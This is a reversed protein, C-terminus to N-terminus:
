TLGSERQSTRRPIDSRTGDKETLDSNIFCRLHDCCSGHLTYREGQERLMSVACKFNEGLGRGGDPVQGDQDNVHQCRVLEEGLEGGQPM